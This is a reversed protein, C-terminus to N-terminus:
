KERQRLHCRPQHGVVERGLDLELPGDHAVVGVRHPRRDAGIVHQGRAARQEMRMQLAADIRHRHRHLSQQGVDRLLAVACVQVGLAGRALPM